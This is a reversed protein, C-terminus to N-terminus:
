RGMVDLTRVEEVFHVYDRAPLFPSASRGHLMTLAFIVLFGLLQALVTIGAAGVIAAARGHRSGVTLAYWGLGGLGLLLLGIVLSGAVLMRVGLIEGHVSLASLGHTVLSVFHMKSRGHLRPLRSTVIGARPLRAHFVAAAYHNWLEPVVVMRGVLRSPIASFNGVRVPIGTLVRHLIRYLLYFARFAFSEVRRTREAFVVASGQLEEARRVLRVADRPDDEGDGDMVVAAEFRLHADIWALGVAIARQHGLNHRLTLVTLRTVNSGRFSSLVDGPAESSGDDVVVLHVPGPVGDLARDLLPLLGALATWDNYVPVLVILRDFVRPPSETKGTAETM